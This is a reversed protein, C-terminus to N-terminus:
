ATAPARKNWQEVNVGKILLWLPFAIEAIAIPLALFVPTADYSPVFLLATSDILYVCSALIFLVGLIRPFYGSKFILYGLVFVHPAFFVIGIEFGYHHANLFLLVLAHLQDAEFAALYDAGSLLLLVVFSNLLNIAHITTMALRFVTAVLSLTKSVPKLLVYLVISLVIECLLVVFESAIGIRFLPESALINNATAAADGPALLRSPVYFHAVIAAITIVLYLFGAFRAMARPSRDAIRNTLKMNRLTFTNSEM